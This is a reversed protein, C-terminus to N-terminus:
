EGCVYYVGHAAATIGYPVQIEYGAVQARPIEGTRGADGVKEAQTQAHYAGEYRVTKGARGVLIGHHHCQAVYGVSQADGLGNKQGQGPFEWVGLGVLGAESVYDGLREFM